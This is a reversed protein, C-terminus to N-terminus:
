MARLEISSHSLTHTIKVRQLDRESEGFSSCIKRRVLEKQLFNVCQKTLPFIEAYREFTRILFGTLVYKNSSIYINTSALSAKRANFLHTLFTIIKWRRHAETRNLLLGYLDMRFMGLPIFWEVSSCARTM